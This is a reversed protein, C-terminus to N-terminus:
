PRRGGYGFIDELSLKKLKGYKKLSEFDVNKEDGLVSISLAKNQINEKHFARINDQTFAQTREFLDHRPDTTLNWRKAQEYSFLIGERLIRQNRITSIVSKKAVDFGEQTIPYKEILTLMADIAEKQKDAQTGVYGTYSDYDGARSSSSYLVYASYALARAERLERFVISSMGLGFTENYLSKEAEKVPDYVGAARAFLIESQVMDYHTYLVEPEKIARMNFKRATGLPEFKEPIVHRRDIWTVLKKPEIPGYYLVRHETRVFRQIIDILEQSTLANLEQNQLVNTFPSSSGYLSYNLLAKRIARRDSMRNEREKKIGEILKQLADPDAEPNALLAELLELAAEGNKALGNLQISSANQNVSTVIKCGLKFLEEKFAQVSTGKPALYRLYRLAIALKPDHRRSLDSYYYLRFRDNEDNKVYHIPLSGGKAALTSLDKEYDVFVPQLEAPTRQMIDAAFASRVDSNLPVTTIKPKDVKPDKREGKRKLISVHNVYYKKAFSVVEEKTTQQMNEALNLQDLLNLEDFTAVNVLINVRSRNNEYQSLLFRRHNNAIAEILSADFDGKKLLDIQELLLDRVEELTQDARPQAYLIEISSNDYTHLFASPDLVKQTQKLNLDVLGAQGNSLIRDALLATVYNKKKVEPLLYALFISEEEPGYVANKISKSPPLVKPSVFKPLNPNSKLKGFSKDILAITKDYDFDGSLCLSMNNPRYYTDFFAKIATISPNKLHDISGIVTQTGYPHNPFLKSQLADYATSLDNDLSRNKEEYVTELETHFLRPVLSSFRNAEVTLFTELQNSPIDNIYVTNDHSTYANTQTAGLSSMIGDYENPVAYKAAENSLSDIQTYIEARAQSNSLKRYREFLAEVKDLLVREKEYDITGFDKTGKFLIHELYHALGTHQPPDNKAGVRVVTSTYVRPTSRYVSLYVKLGNKLTYIRTGLPDGPVYQYTYGHNTATKMAFSKVQSSGDGGCSMQTLLGVLMLVKIPLRM